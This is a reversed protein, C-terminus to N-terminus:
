KYESHLLSRAFYSQVKKKDDGDYNYGWNLHPVYVDYTKLVSAVEVSSEVIMDKLM